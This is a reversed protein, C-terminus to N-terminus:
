QLYDEPKLSKIVDDSFWLLEGGQWRTWNADSPKIAEHDEPTFPPDYVKMYGEIPGALNELAERVASGDTTGAQKVAAAWITICDHAQEAVYFLSEIPLKAGVRDLLQQQKPTLVEDPGTTLFLPVESLQPGAVDVFTKTQPGWLTLVTPMYGIKEMSRLVYAIPTGQALILVTDAGAAQIQGLQSTMDTDNVDFKWSGVIPVGHKEALAQTEGLAGEGYGTTEAMLAIKPDDKHNVAYTLIASVQTSDALSVRFMYNEAGPSPPATIATSTTMPTIVPIHKENPIHKWALANGSNAPGIVVAVEENDILDSMNQISKPPVGTDDRIILEVQQGLLGGNANIEALADEIGLIAAQGVTASPSGSLDGNFGVEIQAQASGTAAFAGAVILARFLRYM